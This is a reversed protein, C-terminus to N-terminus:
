AGLSAGRLAKDPEDHHHRRFLGKNLHVCVKEDMDNGDGKLILIGTAILQLVLAKFTVLELNKAKSLFILMSSDPCGKVNQPSQENMSSNAGDLRQFVWVLAKLAGRGSASEFLGKKGVCSGRAADCKDLPAHSALEFPNSAAHEL